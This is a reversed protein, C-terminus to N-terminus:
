IFSERQVAAAQQDARCPCPSLLLPPILALGKTEQMRLLVGLEAPFREKELM